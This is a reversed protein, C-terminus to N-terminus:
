TRWIYVSSIYSRVHSSTYPPQAFLRRHYHIFLFSGCSSFLSPLPSSFCTFIQSNSLSSHCSPLVWVFPLVATPPSPHSFHSFTLPPPSPRPSCRRRQLWVFSAIFFTHFRLRAAHWVVYRLAYVCCHACPAPATQSHLLAFSRRFGSSPQCAPVPVSPPSFSIAAPCTPSAPSARKPYLPCFFSPDPKM